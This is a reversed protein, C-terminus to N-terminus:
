MRCPIDVSFTYWICLDFVCESLVLSFLVCFRLGLIETELKGAMWFCCGVMDVMAALTGLGSM